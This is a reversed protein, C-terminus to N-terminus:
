SFIIKLVKIEIRICLFNGVEGEIRV